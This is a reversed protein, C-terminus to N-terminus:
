KELILEMEVHPINDELFEDSCVKFGEKEYYGIAYTQAEIFIKKPNMKEKVVKIGEKLLKGGLGSGRDVTLVRGLRVVEKTEDKYFARLYSSIKKGSQSFIHLSEYDIDDLEVYPCNQEVVFVNVRAKIIEYLEVTNLDDFYKVSFNM